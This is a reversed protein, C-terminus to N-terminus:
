TAYKIGYHYEGTKIYCLALNLCVPIEINKILEVAQSQEKVVDGEFLMKLSLLAKNYYAIAVRHGGNKEDEEGKMCNICLNGNQKEIYPILLKNM